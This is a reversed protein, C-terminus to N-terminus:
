SHVALDLVIPLPEEAEGTPPAIILTLVGALGAFIRRLV